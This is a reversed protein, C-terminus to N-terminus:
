LTLFHLFITVVLSGFCFFGAEREKGTCIGFAFVVVNVFVMHINM